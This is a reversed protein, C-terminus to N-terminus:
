PTIGRSALDKRLLRVARFVRLKVANETLGFAEGIEGYPRDEILALLAVARLHVPLRALAARIQTLVDARVGADPPEDGALEDSLGVEPPQSHLHDLARNTAIRRAWPWFERGSDFRARAKYIRWFAEVTIDEAADRDRVMRLVWAYVRASYERYLAEFADPDGRM